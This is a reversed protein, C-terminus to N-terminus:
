PGRRPRSFEVEIPPSTAEVPEGRANLAPVFRKRRLCALAAEGFGAGPDDEVWARIMRGKESVQVRARVRQEHTPWATAEDPWSQHCEPASRLRVPRSLRAHGTAHISGRADRPENGTHGQGGAGRVSGSYHPGDGVTFDVWAGREADGTMVTGSTSAAPTPSSPARVSPSASSDDSGPRETTGAHPPPSSPRVRRHPRSALEAPPGASMQPPPPEPPPVDATLPEAPPPKAPSPEVPLPEAPSPEVPLPEAPPPEAPAPEGIVFEVDFAAAPRTKVRPSPIREFLSATAAAALHTGLMLLVAPLWDRRSSVNPPVAIRGIRHVRVLDVRTTVGARPHPTSPSRTSLTM